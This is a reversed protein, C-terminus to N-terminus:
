APPLTEGKNDDDDPNVARVSVNAVQEQFQEWTLTVRGSRNAAHWAGFIDATLPMDELKIKQIRAHRETAIRDAIYVPIDKHVTGDILQVDAFLQQM